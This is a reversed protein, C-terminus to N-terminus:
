AKKPAGDGAGYTRVPLNALWTDVDSELWGITNAVLQRPAPFDGARVRRWILATVRESRALVEEALRLKEAPSGAIIKQRYVM